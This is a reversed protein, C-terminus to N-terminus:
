KSLMNDLSQCWYCSSPCSTQQWGGVVAFGWCRTKYQITSGNSLDSDALYLYMTTSFSSLEFIADNERMSDCIYVPCELAQVMKLRAHPEFQPYEPNEQLWILRSEDPAYTGLDSCSSACPHFAACRTFTTSANKKRKNGHTSDAFGWIGGIPAWYNVVGNCRGKYSNQSRREIDTCLICSLKENILISIRKKAFRNWRQLGPLLWYQM